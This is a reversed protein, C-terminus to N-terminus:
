HRCTFVVILVNTLVSASEAKRLFKKLFESKASKSGIVSIEM